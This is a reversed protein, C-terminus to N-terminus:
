YLRKLFNIYDYLEQRLRYNWWFEKSLPTLGFVKYNYKQEIDDADVLTLPALPKSGITFDEATRTIYMGNLFNGRVMLNPTDSPKNPYNLPFVMRARHAAELRKKMAAYAQAAEKTKFYPDNLYSPTFLQEDTNRGLLIQDVNLQVLEHGYRAVITEIVEPWNDVRKQRETVYALKGEINM